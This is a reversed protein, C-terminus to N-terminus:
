LLARITSHILIRNYPSMPRPAHHTSPLAHSGPVRFGLPRLAYLTPASVRVPLEPGPANQADSIPRTATPRTILPVAPPRLAIGVRPSGPTVRRVSRCRSPSSGSGTGM